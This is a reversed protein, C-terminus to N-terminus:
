LRVLSLFKLERQSQLSDIRFQNVSSVSDINDSSLTLQDLFEPLNLNLLLVRNPLDEKGNFEGSYISIKLYRLKRLYIL